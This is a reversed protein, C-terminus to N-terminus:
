EGREMRRKIDLLWKQHEPKPIVCEEVTLVNIMYRIFKRDDADLRREYKQLDITLQFWEDPTTQGHANCMGVTLAIAVLVAFAIVHRPIARM